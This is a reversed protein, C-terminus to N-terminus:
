RGRAKYVAAGNRKYCFGGNISLFRNAKALVMDSVLGLKQDEATSLNNPPCVVRM